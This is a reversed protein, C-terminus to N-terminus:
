NINYNNVINTDDIYDLFKNQLNLISKIIKLNNDITKNGSNKAILSSTIPVKFNSKDLRMLKMNNINKDNNLSDSIKNISYRFKKYQTQWENEDGWKNLSVHGFVDNIKIKVCSTSTLTGQYKSHILRIWGCINFINLLGDFFLNNQKSLENLIPYKLKEKETFKNKFFLIFKIISIDNMCKDFVNKNYHAILPAKITLLKNFDKRTKVFLASKPKKHKHKENQTSMIQIIMGSLEKQGDQIQSLIKDNQISPKSLIVFLKSVIIYETASNLKIKKLNYKNNNGISMNTKCLLNILFQAFDIIKNELEYNIIEKDSILILIDSFIYNILDNEKDNNINYNPILDILLNIINILMEKNLFSIKNNMLIEIQKQTNENFKNLENKIAICKIKIINSKINLSNDKNFKHLNIFKLIYSM